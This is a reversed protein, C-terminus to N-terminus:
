DLSALESELHRLAGELASRRMPSTTESLERRIRVLDLELAGRRAGREREEVSLRHAQRREPAGDERQSEVSKSEWGRAVTCRSEGSACCIRNWVGPFM